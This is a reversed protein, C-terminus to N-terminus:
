HNDQLKAKYSSCAEPPISMASMTQDATWQMNSMLNKIAQLLMQEGKQVGKREGKREAEEIDERVLWRMAENM